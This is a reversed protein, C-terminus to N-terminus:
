VKPSQSTRRELVNRDNQEEISDFERFDFEDKMALYSDAEKFSELTVFGSSKDVSRSQQLIENSIKEVIDEHGITEGSKLDIKSPSKFLRFKDLNLKVTEQSLIKPKLKESPDDDDNDDDDENDDNDDNSSSTSEKSKLDSIDPSKQIQSFDLPPKPLDIGEGAIIKRSEQLTKALQNNIAEVNEVLNRVDKLSRPISSTSLQLFSTKDQSPPPPPSILSFDNGSSLVSFFFNILLKEESITFNYNLFYNKIAFNEILYNQLM